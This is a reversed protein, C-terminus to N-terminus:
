GLLVCRVRLDTTGPNKVQIKYIYGAVEGADSWALPTGSNNSVHDVANANTLADRTSFFHPANATIICKDWTVAAQTPTNDTASTATDNRWALYLTGSGVVEVLGMDWDQFPSTLYDWLTVTTGALVPVSDDHAPGTTTDTEFDGYPTQVQGYSKPTGGLTRTIARFVQIQAGM